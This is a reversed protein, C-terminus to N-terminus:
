SAHFVESSYNTWCNYNDFHYARNKEKKDINIQRKFNCTVGKYAGHKPTYVGLKPYVHAMFQSEPIKTLCLERKYIILTDNV